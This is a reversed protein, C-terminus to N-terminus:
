PLSHTAPSLLEKQEPFQVHRIEAVLRPITAALPLSGYGPARAFRWMLTTLSLPAGRGARPLRHRGQTGM